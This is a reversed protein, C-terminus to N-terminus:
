YKGAIYGVIYGSIFLGILKFIYIYDIYGGSQPEDHITM